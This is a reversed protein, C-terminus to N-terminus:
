GWVCPSCQSRPLAHGLGHRKLGAVAALVAAILSFIVRHSYRLRFQTVLHGMFSGTVFFAIAIAPPLAAQLYGQGSKLAAFTTNGSMFSVYVGLFLLGYGDVYGAILALCIALAWQTRTEALLLRM